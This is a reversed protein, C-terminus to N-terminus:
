VAICRNIGSCVRLDSIRNKELQAAGPNCAILRSRARTATVLTTLLKPAPNSLSTIYIYPHATVFAMPLISACLMDNAGRHSTIATQGANTRLIMSTGTPATKSMILATTDIHHRVLNNRIFTGADDTGIIAAISSTLGQAAFSVAVNHAGGGPHLARQTITHKIDSRLTIHSGHATAHADLTAYIDQTAGGIAIVRTM